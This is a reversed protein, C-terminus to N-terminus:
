RLRAPPRTEPRPHPGHEAAPDTPLRSRVVMDRRGDPHALAARRVGRLPFGAAAAVRQSAANNPETLMEARGFGHDFACVALTRVGASAIRSSFLDAAWAIATTRVAPM